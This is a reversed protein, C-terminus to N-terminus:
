GLGLVLGFWWFGGGGGGVVVFCFPCHIKIQRCSIVPTIGAGTPMKSSHETAVNLQCGSSTGSFLRYRSGNSHLTM